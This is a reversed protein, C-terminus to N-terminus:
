TNITKAAALCCVSEAGSKLLLNAAVNLSDGHTTIDDLLLVVKDKFIEKNHVELSANDEKATRSEGLHKRGVRTRRYLCSTGDMIKGTCLAKAVIRIATNELGQSSSPVVCIVFTKDRRLIPTFLPLLKSIAYNSDNKIKLIDEHEEVMVPTICAQKPIYDYFYFIDTGQKITHSLNQQSVFPSRERIRREEERRNNDALQRIHTIIDVPNGELDYYKNCKGCYLFIVGFQKKQELNERGCIICHKEMTYELFSYENIL